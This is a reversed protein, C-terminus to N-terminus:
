LDDEGILRNTTLGGTTNTAGDPRGSQVAVQPQKALMELTYAVTYPAPRDTGPRRTFYALTRLSIGLRRPSAVEAQTLGTKGRGIAPIARPALRTVAHMPRKCSKM